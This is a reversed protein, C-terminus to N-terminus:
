TTLNLKRSLKIIVSRDRKSTPFLNAMNQAEQIGHNKPANTFQSFRRNAAEHRDTYRDARFVQAGMPRIKMTNSIQANEIIKRSFELKM